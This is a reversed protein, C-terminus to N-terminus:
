GRSKASAQKPRALEEQIRAGHLIHELAYNGEHCAYEYVPGNSPTFVMEGKWTQSYFGPDEVTFAYTLEDKATRTFRETVVADRCRLTRAELRLYEQYLFFKEPLASNLESADNSLPRSLNADGAIRRAGDQIEPYRLLMIDSVLGSMDRRHSAMRDRLIAQAAESLHEPPQLRSPPAM